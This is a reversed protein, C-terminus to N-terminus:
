KYSFNLKKQLSTLLIFMFFPTYLLPETSLNLMLVIFFFSRDNDIISQYFFLFLIYLGVIFGQSFFIKVFDNSTARDGIDSNTFNFNNPKYKNREKLFAENNIGVGFYPNNVSIILGSYLDYLRLSYSTINTNNEEEMKEELSGIGILFISFAIIIVIVKEFFATKIIRLSYILQLFMLLLGTTSFTTLICITALVVNRRNKFKFLTLFLFINAFVSLVGPEWFFGQNRFFTIGAILFQSNYYFLYNFTNVEYGSSGFEVVNFSCFQTVIFGVLSHLVFYKLITYLIPVFNQKRVDLSLKVMLAYLGLSMVTFYNGFSNSSSFVFNVLLIFVFLIFSVTFLKFDTLNIKKNIVSFFAIIFGVLFVPIIYGVFLISGSLLVLIFVLLFNVLTNTNIM